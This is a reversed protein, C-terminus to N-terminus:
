CGLDVGEGVGGGGWSWFFIDCLLEVEELFLFFM